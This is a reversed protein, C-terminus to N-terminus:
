SAQCHYSFVVGFAGVLLYRMMRRVHLIGATSLVGRPPRRAAAGRALSKGLTAVAGVCRGGAARTAARTAVRRRTLGAFVRASCSACAAVAGPRLIPRAAAPRTTHCRFSFCAVHGAPVLGPARAGAWVILAVLAASVARLTEAPSPPGLRAPPLCCRARTNKKSFRLPRADHMAWRRRRLVRGGGADGLTGRWSLKFTKCSSAFSSPADSLSCFLDKGALGTKTATTSLRNHQQVAHAVIPTPNAVAASRM